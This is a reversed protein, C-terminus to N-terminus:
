SNFNEDCNLYHLHIKFAFNGGKTRCQVITNEVLIDIKGDDMKFKYKVCKKVVPNVKKIIMCRPMLSHVQHSTKAGHWPQM